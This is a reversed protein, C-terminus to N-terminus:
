DHGTGPGISKGAGLIWASVAAALTMALISCPLDVLVGALSFHNSSAYLGFNVSSWFLTGAILGTKLGSLFNRAGSWKIVTAIFFGTTLTTAAMAWGVLQDSPRALQKYFEESVPPYTEFVNKLFLFYVGANILLNVVSAALGSLIFNKNM